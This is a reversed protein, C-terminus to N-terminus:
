AGETMWQDQMWGIKRSDVGIDEASVGRHAAFLARYESAYARAIQEVDAEGLRNPSLQVVGRAGSMHPGLLMKKIRMFTALGTVEELTVSDAFRIGGKTPSLSPFHRVRSGTYAKTGSKLEVAIGRIIKERPLVVEGRFRDSLGKLDEKNLPKM